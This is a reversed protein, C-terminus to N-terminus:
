KKAREDGVILAQVTYSYGTQPNSLTLRGMQHVSRTQDTRSVSLGILGSNRAPRLAVQVHDPLDEATLTIRAPDGLAARAEAPLALGQWACETYLADYGLSDDWRSDLQITALPTPATLAASVPALAALTLLATLAKPLINM